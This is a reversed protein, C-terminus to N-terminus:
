RRLRSVARDTTINGDTDFVREWVCQSEVYFNEFYIRPEAGELVNRITMTWQGVRRGNLFAGSAYHITGRQTKREEIIYFGDPNDKRFVRVPVMETGGCMDGIERMEKAYWRRADKVVHFTDQVHISDAVLRGGDYKQFHLIDGDALHERLIVAGHMVGDRNTYLGEKLVLDDFHVTDSFSQSLACGFTLLFVLSFCFTKM